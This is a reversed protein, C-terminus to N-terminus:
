LRTGRGQVVNVTAHEFAPVLLGRRVGHRVFVRMKACCRGTLRLLLHFYPLFPLASGGTSLRLHLWCCRTGHANTQTRCGCACWCAKWLCARARLRQWCRTVGARGGSRSSKAAAAAACCVDDRPVDEEAVGSPMRWLVRCFTPLTTRSLLAVGSAHRWPVATQSSCWGGAGNRGDTGGRLIDALVPPLTARFLAHRRALLRRKLCRLLRARVFVCRACDGRGDAGATGSAASPTAEQGGAAARGQAAGGTYLWIGRADRSAGQWGAAPLRQLRHLGDGAQAICAVCYLTLRQRRWCYRVGDGRVTVRLLSFVAGLAAATGRGRNGGSGRSVCVWAQRGSLTHPRQSHMKHPKLLLLCFPLLYPPLPASCPPLRLYLRLLCASPLTPYTCTCAPTCCTAHRRRQLSTHLFTSSLYPHWCLSSDAAQLRIVM